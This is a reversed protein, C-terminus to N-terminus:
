ARTVLGQVYDPSNGAAGGGGGQRRAQAAAFAAKAREALTYYLPYFTGIGGEKFSM